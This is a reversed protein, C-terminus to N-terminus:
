HRIREKLLKIRRYGFAIIPVVMIAILGILPSNLLKDFFSASVVFTIIERRDVNIKTADEPLIFTFSSNDARLSIANQTVNWKYVPVKFIERLDVILEGTIVLRFKRWVTIVEYTRNLSKPDVSVTVLMPGSLRTKITISSNEDNFEMPSVSVTATLNMDEFSKEFSNKVNTIAEPENEKIPYYLVVDLNELKLVVEIDEGVKAEINLSFAYVSPTLM